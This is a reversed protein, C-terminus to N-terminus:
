NYEYHFVGSIAKAMPLPEQDMNLPNWATAGNAAFGSLFGLSVWYFALPLRWANVLRASAAEHRYPRKSGNESTKM